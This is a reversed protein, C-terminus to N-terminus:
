LRFWPHSAAGAKGITARHDATRRPLGAQPERDAVAVQPQRESGHRGPEHGLHHGAARRKAVWRRERGLAKEILAPQSKSDGDREVKNNNNNNCSGEPRARPCAKGFVPMWGPDLGPCAGPDLGPLNKPIM